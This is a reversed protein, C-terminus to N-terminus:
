NDVGELERMRKNIDKGYLSLGKKYIFNSAIKKPIAGSSLLPRIKSMLYASANREQQLRNALAEKDAACEISFSIYAKKDIAKEYDRCHGIEHLSTMIGELTAINGLVLCGGEGLVACGAMGPFFPVFLFRYGEPLDELIDIKENTLKDTIIWNKLIRYESSRPFDALIGQNEDPGYCYKSYPAFEYRFELRLKDNEVLVDGEQGYEIEAIPKKMEVMEEEEIPDVDPKNKMSLYKEANQM